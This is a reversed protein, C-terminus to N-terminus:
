LVIGVPLEDNKLIVQVASPAIEAPQQSWFYRIGLSYSLIQRHASSDVIVCCEIAKVIMHPGLM